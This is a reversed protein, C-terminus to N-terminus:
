SSSSSYSSPSSCSSSSSSSSLSSSSPSYTTDTEREQKGADTDNGDTKIDDKESLKDDDPGSNEVRPLTVEIIGTDPMQRQENGGLAEGTSAAKNGVFDDNKPRTGIPTEDVVSEKDNDDQEVLADKKDGFTGGAGKEPANTGDQKSAMHLEKQLGRAVSHNSDESKNSKASANEEQWLPFVTNHTQVDYVVALHLCV